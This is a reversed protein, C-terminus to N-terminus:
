VPPNTNTSTKGRIYTTIFVDVFIVLTFNEGLFALMDATTSIAGSLSMAVSVVISVIVIPLFKNMEFAEPNTGLSKAYYKLAGYFGVMVATFVIPLAAILLDIETM